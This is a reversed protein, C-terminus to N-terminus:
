RNLSSPPPKAKFLLAAVALCALGAGAMALHFGAAIAQAYADTAIAPATQAMLGGARLHMLAGLLAIGVVMGTQRAANMTASASGSRQHPVAAMVVMGNAPTTLGAGVGLLALLVGMLAYPTHPGLTLMLLLAVGAIALGHRMLDLPSFRQSLRGFCFSVLGSVVFQPMMRLGTQAAGLGQAQQLFLSFFFLSSYISFGLVFASLNALSFLPTRFLDLPLLPRKVRKEVWLFLVLGLLALTLAFVTLAATWGRQGASILGFTLAGLWLVSLIQGGPDFAAQDPHSAEGIGWLGCGLAIVGLPLNILFISQWSFLEVLTGGLLPGLILSLATFSSWGGIVHARKAPEPFARALIALAGPILLAGGLGQVVRGGLLWSLNGALACLASGLTFLAVGVLWCRKQGYRDALPGTSLIFASLCLAYADVVWQLGAFDTDFTHQLTPLAVHVISIDLVAMFTGLYVAALLAPRRLSNM